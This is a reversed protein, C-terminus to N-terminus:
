NNTFVPRGITALIIFISSGTNPVDIKYKELKTLVTIVPIFMKIVLFSSM